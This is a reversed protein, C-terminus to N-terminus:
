HNKERIQETYEDKGDGGSGQGSKEVCTKPEHVKVEGKVKWDMESFGTSFIM